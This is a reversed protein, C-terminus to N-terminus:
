CLHSEPSARLLVLILHPEAPASARGPTKSGRIFVSSRLHSKIHHKIRSFRHGDTTSAITEPNIPPNRFDHHHKNQFWPHVCNFVSAIQLPATDTFIPTWRHNFRNNRSQDTPHPLRPPTQKPVVSSCPDVCIANRPQCPAPRSHPRSKRSPLLV